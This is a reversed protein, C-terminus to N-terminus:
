PFLQIQGFMERLITFFTTNFSVKQSVAIADVNEIFSPIIQFQTNKDTIKRLEKLTMGLKARGIGMTSILRESSVAKTTAAQSETSTALEVTQSLPQVTRAQCASFILTALLVIRKM